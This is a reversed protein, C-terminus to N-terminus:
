TSMLLFTQFELLLQFKLYDLTFFDPIGPTTLYFLRSNWCGKYTSFSSNWTTLLFIYDPIGTGEILPRINDPIAWQYMYISALIEIAM